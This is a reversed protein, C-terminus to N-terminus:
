LVSRAYLIIFLPVKERTQVPKIEEIDKDSSKSEWPGPIRCM